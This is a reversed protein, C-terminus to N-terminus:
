FPIDEETLEEELQAQKEKGEKAKAIWKDLVGIAREGQAPTMAEVNDARQEEPASDGILVDLVDDITKGCLEAFEVVKEAITFATEDSVVEVADIVIPAQNASQPASLSESASNQSKPELEDVGMEEEGYLGQFDAPFAERLAHCIAVKRIMTAPMKNWNGQGKAYESMSVEDFIGVKYGKVYVRCWGGVLTEGELLLSGERREIITEVGSNQDRKVKRVVTIGAEMGDFKPNAQARKTFVEKSTVISAPGNGYKIIYVDKTFPNLKQAQCLAMVLALERDDINPCLRARVEDATFSVEQGNTEYKVLEM